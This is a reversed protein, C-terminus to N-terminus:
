GTGDGFLGWVGTDCEIFGEASWFGREGRRDIIILRTFSASADAEENGDEEVEEEEKEIDTAEADESESEEASVTAM